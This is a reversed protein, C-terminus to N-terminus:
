SLIAVDVFDGAEFGKQQLQKNWEPSKRTRNVCPLHM